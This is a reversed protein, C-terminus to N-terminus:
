PTEDLLTDIAKFLKTVSDEETGEAFGRVHGQRDVLIIKGSHDFGGPVDADEYAVVFYDEALDLTFDKDGYLFSWKQTNAGINNAYAKLQGPTDRKPDITFSVLKIRDDSKYREQLRLMQKAVKPCISPCSTFFFDALYIYKSLSENNVVMSDQDIYEFSRITHAVEQGDIIESRGLIPLKDPEQNCSVFSAVTIFTLLIYKKM